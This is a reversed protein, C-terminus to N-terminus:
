GVIKGIINEKLGNIYDSAKMKPKGEPQILTLVIVGNHTKIGIGEKYLKVIEGDIAGPFYEDAIMSEWVKFRKGELMFYAGPFSNLGRIQNYIQRTTKSFDIKEDVPKIIPAFTVKDEEQPIRKNTGEIISPLTEILLESGLKSLKDHLTSATDIDTIEVERQSIIDGDDMGPAMYMITIGSKSHGEIIARHIPAGGRLKPLLSAHVNICGYKPYDLLEKPLIQGYACTVILDPELEIIENYQEKINELQLVVINNEEALIKIPPKAIKGNRGVQKDLQTVVAKVKYNKILADLVPVSFTPTGMFIVRPERKIEIDEINM